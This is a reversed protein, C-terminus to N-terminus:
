SGNAMRAIADLVHDAVHDRIRKPDPHRGMEADCESCQGAPGFVPIAGAVVNRLHLPDLVDGGADRLVLVPSTWDNLYHRKWERDEGFLRAARDTTAEDWVHFEDHDETTM